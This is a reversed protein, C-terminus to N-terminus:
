GGQHLTRELARIEQQVQRQTESLTTMIQKLRELVEIPAATHHTETTLVPEQDPLNDERIQQYLSLTSKSPQVGLEQRLAVVCHDYQRLAMARDGALYHLRMLQRHTRERVCDYRLIQVGYELAAEYGEHAEAYHMLKELMILYQNQLHQREYLCWDQYWGELLDGQYLAVAARLQQALDSELAQGAIGQVRSCIQEFVAVDLWLSPNSRVQVWDTEALLVQDAFPENYASLAARLLWLSQRLSKKSQETSSEGWIVGALAERPQPRDRSLLLRCFLEQLRRSELGHLARNDYEVRFKGFLYVNLPAL